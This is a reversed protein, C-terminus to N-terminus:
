IAAPTTSAVLASRIRAYPFEPRTDCVPGGLGGPTVARPMVFRATLKLNTEPDCIVIYPM